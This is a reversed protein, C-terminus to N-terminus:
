LRERELIDMSDARAAKDLLTDPDFNMREPPISSFSFGALKDRLKSSCRWGTVRAPNGSAVAWAPISGDLVSNSELIAGEGLTAGSRILCHEGIRVATGLSIPADGCQFRTGHGIKVYDGILLPADGERAEVYLPGSAYRAAQVQLLPFVNVPELSNFPYFNKWKRRFLRLESSFARLVSAHLKKKAARLFSLWFQPLSRYGRMFPMYGTKLFRYHDDADFYYRVIHRLSRVQERRLAAPSVGNEKLIGIYNDGFVEAFNYGGKSPPWIAIFFDDRIVVSKKKQVILRLLADTHAFSRSSFRSFDSLSDFDDKWIGFSNTSCMYYSVADVFADLGHLETVGCKKRSEKFFLVPKEEQWRHVHELMRELMGPEFWATDNCLKLYTGSGLSLAQEFNKDHINETNRHYVIKAGYRQQFRAVVAPTDDASANDSVCIEVLSTERFIRQSCLCDLAKELYWARNYTPICISLLPTSNPM